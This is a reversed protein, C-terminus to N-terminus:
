DEKLYKSLAKELYPFPTVVVVVTRMTPPMTGKSSPAASVIIDPTASNKQVYLIATGLVVLLTV